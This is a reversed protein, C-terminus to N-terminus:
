REDIVTKMATLEQERNSKYCAVTQKWDKQFIIRWVLFIYITLFFECTFMFPMWIRDVSFDKKGRLLKELLTFGNWLMNMLVYTGRLRNKVNPTSFKM